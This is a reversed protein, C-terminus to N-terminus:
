MIRITEIEDLLQKLFVANQCPITHSCEMIFFYLICSFSLFQTFAFPSTLFLGIQFCIFLRLCPFFPFLFLIFNPVTKNTLSSTFCFICVISYLYPLKYALVITCLGSYIFCINQNFLYLMYKCRINPFLITQLSIRLLIERSIVWFTINSFHSTVTACLLFYFLCSWSDWVTTSFNSNVTQKISM